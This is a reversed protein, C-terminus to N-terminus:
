IIFLFFVSLIYFSYLMKSLLTKKLFCATLLHISHFDLINLKKKQLLILISLALTLLDFLSPLSPNKASEQHHSLISNPLDNWWAPVNLNFTHLLSQTGRQLLYYLIYVIFHANKEARM